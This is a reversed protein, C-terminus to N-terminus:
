EQQSVRLSQLSSAWYAMSPRKTGAPFLAFCVPAQHKPRRDTDRPTFHTRPARPAPPGSQPERRTSTQKAKEQSNRLARHLEAAQQCMYSASRDKGHSERNRDKEIRTKPSNPLPVSKHRKREKQGDLGLCQLTKHIDVSNVFKNEGRARCNEYLLDKFSSVLNPSNRMKLAAMALAEATNISLGRESRQDACILNDAQIGLVEEVRRKVKQVRNLEPNNAM